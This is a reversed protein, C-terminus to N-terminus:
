FWSIPGSRAVAFSWKCSFGWGSGMFLVCVQRWLSPFIARRRRVMFRNPNLRTLLLTPSSRLHCWDISVGTSRGVSPWSPRRVPQRNLGPRTRRAENRPRASNWINKTTSRDWDMQIFLKISRSIHKRINGVRGQNENTTTPFRWLAGHLRAWKKGCWDNMNSDRENRRWDSMKSRIQRSSHAIM